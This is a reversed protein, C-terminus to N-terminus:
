WCEPNLSSPSFTSSVRSPMVRPCISSGDYHQIHTLPNILSPPRPPPLPACDNQQEGREYYNSWQGVSWQGLVRKPSSRPCQNAQCRVCLPPNSEWRLKRRPSNAAQHYIPTPTPPPSRYWWEPCSSSFNRSFRRKAPCAPLDFEWGLHKCTSNTPKLLPPPPSFTRSVRSPM